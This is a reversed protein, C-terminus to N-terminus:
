QRGSRRATKTEPTEMVVEILMGPLFLNPLKTLDRDDHIRCTYGRRTAEQQLKVIAECCGYSLLLRGGPNLHQPAGDLLSTMLQFGPDYFAYDEVHTPKGPQWPPNSYIVDFRETPKIVTWAAPKRPPVLRVSLREAVNHRQANLIANRYAWPNIDTAVVFRAGGHLCCLSVLGSGTGIELVTRDRVIDEASLLERFTLSDDPEWFVHELLGVTEPLGVDEESQLLSECFAVDIGAASTAEM